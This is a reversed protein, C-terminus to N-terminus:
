ESIFTVAWGYSRVRWEGNEKVLVFAWGGDEEFSDEGESIVWHTALSLFALNEEVRLDQVTGFSHKLVLDSPPQHWSLIKQSWRKVADPGEFLHPAFNEIIVVGQSAFASLLTVDGTEIFRAVKEIPALLGPDLEETM